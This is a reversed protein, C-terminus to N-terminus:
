STSYNANFLFYTLRSIFNFNVLTHDKNWYGARRVRSIKGSCYTTVDGGKRWNSVCPDKNNFILIHVNTRTREFSRVGNHLGSLHLKWRPFRQIQHLPLKASMAKFLFFVVRFPVFKLFMYLSSDKIITNM